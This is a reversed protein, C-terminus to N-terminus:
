ATQSNKHRTRILHILGFATLSVFFIALVYNFWISSFALQYHGNRLYWPIASEGDLLLRYSVNHFIAQRLLFLISTLLVLQAAYPRQRFVAYGAFLGLLVIVLLGVWRAWIVTRQASPDALLRESRVIQERVYPIELSRPDGKKLDALTNEAIALTLGLEAPPLFSLEIGISAWAIWLGVALARM